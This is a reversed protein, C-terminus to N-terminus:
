AHLMLLYWGLLSYTGSLVSGAWATKSQGQGFYHLFESYFIGFSLCIGDIIMNVLFASFVIIWGYKGDSAPHEMTRCRHLPLRKHLTNEESLLSKKVSLREVKVLSSSTQAASIPTKAPANHLGPVIDESFNLSSLCPLSHTRWDNATIGPSCTVFLSGLRTRDCPTRTAAISKSQTDHDEGIESSFTEDLPHEPQLPECTAIVTSM